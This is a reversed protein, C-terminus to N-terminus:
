KSWCLSSAIRDRVGNELGIDNTAFQDRNLLEPCWVRMALDFRTEFVVLLVPDM